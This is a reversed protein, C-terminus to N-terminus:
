KEKWPEGVFLTDGVDVGALDDFATGVKCGGGAAPAPPSPAAAPGAAESGASSYTDAFGRSSKQNQIKIEKDPETECPRTLARHFHHHM